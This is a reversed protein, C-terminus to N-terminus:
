HVTIKTDTQKNKLNEPCCNARHGRKEWPDLFVSQSETQEAKKKNQPCYHLSGLEIDAQFSSSLM